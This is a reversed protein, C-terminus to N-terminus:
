KNGYDAVNTELYLQIENLAIEANMWLEALAPDAIQAPTIVRDVANGLNDGVINTIEVLTLM